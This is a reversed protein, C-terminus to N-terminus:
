EKNWHFSNQFKGQRVKLFYSGAPIQELSIWHTGGALNQRQALINKGNASYVGWEVLGSQPVQLLIGNNQMQANFPIAPAKAVIPAIDYEEKNVALTSDGIVITIFKEFAEYRETEPASAKILVIANETGAQITTGIKSLYPSSEAGNYTYSIPINEDAYTTDPLTNAVSAAGLALTQSKFKSHIRQQGKAFSITITDSLARYGTVAPAEVLLKGEGLTTTFEVFTITSNLASYCYKSNVCTGQKVTFIEPNLSTFSLKGGQTTTTSVTLMSEFENTGTYNVMSHGQSCTGGFRCRFDSLGAVTQKPAKSVTVISKSNDNATLITFGASLINLTSGDVTAVTEDSSTYTCGSKLAVTGATETVITNEIHCSGSTNGAILSDEWASKHSTLYNKVITGSATYSANNLAEQSTLFDSGAFMASQESKNDVSSTYQRFSWNCNSIKNTEMFSIWQASNSENPAGNGNASTTGWESIFVANGSNMAATLKSGFTDVTHTAAYFHFVYAVNTAKIEGYSSLQSWNPTGVLILNETYQRISTSIDNAYDQITSWSTKVPENYIEFIVNPVNAYKQAMQTFFAKALAQENEARHSHWDIIIYVDNEIAAEVMQDIKSIYTEPSTKYSYGENMANKTGGDSDYYEIGMAFRFIDINLNQVAWSIADSKYYQLGTADSWFLSMGRLMAQKGNSLSVVKGASTGLAGYNQVPGVRLPKASLADASVSQVYALAGALLIKTLKNM